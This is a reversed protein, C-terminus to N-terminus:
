GQGSITSTLHVHPEVTRTTGQPRSRLVLGGRQLSGHLYVRSWREDLKKQSGGQLSLDTDELHGEDQWWGTLSGCRQWGPGQGGQLCGQKSGNGPQQWM